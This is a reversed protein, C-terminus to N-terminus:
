DAPHDLEALLERWMDAAEKCILLHKEPQPKTVSAIMFADFDAKTLNPKFELPPFVDKM